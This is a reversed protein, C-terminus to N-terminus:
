YNMTVDSLIRIRKIVPLQEPKGDSGPTSSMIKLHSNSDTWFEIQQGAKIANEGAAIHHKTQIQLRDALGYEKQGIMVKKEEISFSMITGTGTPTEPTANSTLPLLGLCLSMGLLFIITKM